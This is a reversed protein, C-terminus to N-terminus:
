TGPPPGARPCGDFGTLGACLASSAETCAAMVCRSGCSTIFARNGIAPEIEIDHRDPAASVSFFPM